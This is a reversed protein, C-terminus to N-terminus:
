ESITIKLTCKAFGSQGPTRLVKIKIPTLTLKATKTLTICGDNLTIEKETALTSFVRIAFSGDIIENNSSDLLEFKYTKAAKSSLLSTTFCKLEGSYYYMSSSAVSDTFSLETTNKSGCTCEGTTDFSHDHLSTITGSGILTGGSRLTFNRGVWNPISEEFDLVVNEVTEGSMIYDVTSPLTLRVSFDANVSDLYIQPISTSTLPTHKNPDATITAIASQKSELTKEKELLMKRSLESKEAGTILLGVEDGITAQTVEKRFKEIGLVTITKNLGHVYLTDNVYVTGRTITTTIVTKGSVTFIDTIPALFPDTDYYKITISASASKPKFNEDTFFLDSVPVTQTGKKKYSLPLCLSIIDTWNETAEAITTGEKVNSFEDLLIYNEFISSDTIEFTTKDLNIELPEITFEGTTSAEKWEVNGPLTIKYEYTNAEIPVKTTYTETGKERYEISLNTADGTVQVKSEIGQKKGNFVMGSLDEVTITQSKPALMSNEIEKEDYYGCITCEFKEVRNVGYTEATKVEWSGDHAAFDKTKDEHGCTTPHYHGSSDTNVWTTMDYKHTHPLKDINETKQYGCDVCTFTKVGEVEETSPKTIEGDNFNHSLKESIDTHGEETCIHWHSTEDNSWTASFTHKLTRVYGCINCDTDMANDYEHDEKESTDTHDEVTCTHWHSTEDNSWTASFTHKLTRVYGCINCDTDMANDYEHDEKESTDTHGEVTCTHWHGIEDFKYDSSYQHAKKIIEIVETKKYGCDVCTFTKVGETEETAEKTVVGNDFSHILKESTDTHDKITCEHWHNQNDYKWDSSFQHKNSNCSAFLTMSLILMGVISHSSIISKQKM